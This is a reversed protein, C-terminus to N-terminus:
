NCDNEILGRSKSKTLSELKLKKYIIELTGEGTNFANRGHIYFYQNEDM